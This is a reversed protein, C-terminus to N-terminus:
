ITRWFKPSILTRTLLYEVGSAKLFDLAEKEALLKKKDAASKRQLPDDIIVKFYKEGENPIDLSKLYPLFKKKQTSGFMELGKEERIKASLILDKLLSEMYYFLGTEICDFMNKDEQLSM